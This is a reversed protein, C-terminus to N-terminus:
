RTRALAEQRQKEGDHHPKCLGQWNSRDWFLVMDGCHPRKHDVVTAPEIIGLAECMVCLPHQELYELRAIQWAYDYGRATSSSRGDRWGDGSRTVTPM